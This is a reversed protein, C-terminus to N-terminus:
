PVRDVNPDISDFLSHHHFIEKEFSVPAFENMLFKHTCKV